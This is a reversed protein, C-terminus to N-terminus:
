TFCLCSSWLLLLKQFFSYPVFLLKQLAFTSYFICCLISKPWSVTIENWGYHFLCKLFIFYVTRKFLLIFSLLLYFLCLWAVFFFIWLHRPHLLETLSNPVSAPNFIKIQFKTSSCHKVSLNFSTPSNM